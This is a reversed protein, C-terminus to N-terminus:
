STKKRQLILQEYARAICATLARLAGLRTESLPHPGDDAYLVNVVRDRIAIPLLAIERVPSRGLGRLVRLDLGSEPPAGRFPEGSAAVRAFVSEADSPVLIGEVRSELGEGAGVLGMVMGRHVVFLAAARAYRRALALAVRAAADRDTARSLAEELALADREADGADPEVDDPLVDDLVLEAGAPPGGHAQERVADFRQHLEAFSSEDILDEDAGLPHIGLEARLRVEEPLEDDEGVARRRVRELRRAVNVFRLPRAIGLHRELVYRLRLEPLVYPVLPRRAARSLEATVHTEAPDLLAVHLGDGDLRLPMALHRSALERPLAALAMADPSDLWEKPPLPFGSSAALHAAVEDLSLLGLEVLNTGLRGGYVVQSQLAQGLQERSLVGRQVLYGGLGFEPM